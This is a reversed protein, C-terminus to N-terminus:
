GYDSVTMDTLSAFAGGPIPAPDLPANKTFNLTQIASPPNIGAAKVRIEVTTDGDLGSTQLTGWAGGGIRMELTAPDLSGCNITNATDDSTCTPTPPVVPAEPTTFSQFATEKADVQATAGNMTVYVIKYRYSTGPTLAMPDVTHGSMDQVVYSIKSDFGPLNDTDAIVAGSFTVSTPTLSLTPFTVKEDANIKKAEVKIVQSASQADELTGDSKKGTATWVLTHTGVSLGFMSVTYSPGSQTVTAPQGDITAKVSAVGEPDRPTLSCTTVGGETITTADCTISGITLPTSIVPLAPTNFTQPATIKTITQKTAGDMTMYSVEYTYGTNPNLAAPNVQVGNTNKVIYELQVDFGVPNDIDVVTAGSFSVSTPTLVLTPLTVTALHDVPAAEVTIVQSATQPSELTGDSAKGTATWVLTHIGVTLGSTVVTYTAGSQTVTAPQGDITATVSAVGEADTPTLSCTTTGGETITTADCSIPGIQLPTSIVKPTEGVKINKESVTQTQEIRGVSALTPVDVRADGLTDMISQRASLYASATTKEFQSRNDGVVTLTLTGGTNNQGM